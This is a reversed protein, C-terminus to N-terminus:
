EGAERKEDQPVYTQQTTQTYIRNVVDKRQYRTMGENTTIERSAAGCAEAERLMEEDKDCAAAAKELEIGGRAMLSAAAVHDGQDALRVAERKIESNKTLAVDKVIQKNCREDAAKEDGDYDVTVVFSNQSKENTRPDTYDVRVQAIELRRGSEGRPVQVEFLAYKEHEGYLGGVTVSMSRGSIEGERGIVGLPRVSDSCSMNIRVDRAAVTMAESAEEAFIRPLDRSSSAFYANGGSASALATMLDENYDLGVGITTVSVEEEALARGLCALDETSSPGVNALGDSLLIIRNEYEWSIHKRLEDQGLSVGGYLATNGGARIDRIMEVLFHKDKVRQAHFLVRPRTDYVVLSMIDYAELREVVEIAGLRANEMKGDAQMSGSKDLVVAINLPPRKDCSAVGIGALGVKVVVTADRDAVVVPKDVDAYVRVRSDALGTRCAVLGAALALILATSKM